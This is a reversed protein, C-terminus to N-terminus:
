PVLLGMERMLRAIRHRGVQRGRELLEDRVKPSGYVGHSEAHVTASEAKLRENEKVTRSPERHRWAYYGSPKVELLRCMMRVPYAGRNEDICAYKM